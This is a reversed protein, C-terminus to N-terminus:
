LFNENCISKFICIIVYYLSKLPSKVATEFWMFQFLWQVFSEYIIHLM